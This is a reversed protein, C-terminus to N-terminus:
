LYKTYVQLKNQKPQIRGMFGGGGNGKSHFTKKDICTYTNIVPETLLELTGEEGGGKTYM